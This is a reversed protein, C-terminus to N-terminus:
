AEDMLAIQGRTVFCAGTGHVCPDLRVKTMPQGFVKITEGTLFGTEPYHPHTTDVIRVRRVLLDEDTLDPSIM